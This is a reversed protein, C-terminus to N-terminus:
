ASLLEDPGFATVGDVECGFRRGAIVIDIEPDNTHTWCGCVVGTGLIAMEVLAGSLSM